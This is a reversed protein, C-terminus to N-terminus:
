PREHSIQAGGVDHGILHREKVTTHVVEQKLEGALVIHRLAVGTADGHKGHLHALAQAQIGRAQAVECRAAQQVVDALEVGGVVDELLGALERIILVGDDLAVGDVTLPHEALHAAEVVAHQMQHAGVM